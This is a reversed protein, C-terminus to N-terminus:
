GVTLRRGDLRWALIRGILRRRVLRCRIRRLMACRFLLLPCRRGTRGRIQGVIASRQDCNLKTQAQSAQRLRAFDSTRHFHTTSGFTPKRPTLFIFARVRTKNNLRGISLNCGACGAGARSDVPPARLLRVSTSRRSRGRWRSSHGPSSREPESHHSASLRWTKGRHCRQPEASPSLYLEVQGSFLCPGGTDKRKGSGSEDRRKTVSIRQM